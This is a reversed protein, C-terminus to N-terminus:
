IVSPRPTITVQKLKRDRSLSYELIDVPDSRRLLKVMGLQLIPVFISIDLVIYKSEYSNIFMDLYYLEDECTDLLSQRATVSPALLIICDAYLINSLCTFRFPAAEALQRFTNLSTM